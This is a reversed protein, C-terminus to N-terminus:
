SDGHVSHYIDAGGVRDRSGDAVGSCADDRQGAGDSLRQGLCSFQVAYM